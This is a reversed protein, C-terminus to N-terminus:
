SPKITCVKHDADWHPIGNGSLHWKLKNEEVIDQTTWSRTEFIVQEALHEVGNILVRWPPLDPNIKDKDTNYRIKIDM